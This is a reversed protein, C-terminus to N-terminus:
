FPVDDDDAVDDGTEPEEPEETIQAKVPALSPDDFPTKARRSKVRADEVVPIRNGIKASFRTDYLKMKSAKGTDMVKRTGDEDYAPAIWTEIGFAQVIERGMGPKWFVGITDGIHGQITKQKEGDKIQLPTEKRLVGVIMISPKRVDTKKSGDTLRAGTPTFLIDSEGDDKWFGVANSSQKTFGKPAQFKPAM